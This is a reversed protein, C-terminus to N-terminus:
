DLSSRRFASRFAPTMPVIAMGLGLLASIGQDRIAADRKWGRM